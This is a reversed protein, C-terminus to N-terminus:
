GMIYPWANILNGSFNNVDDVVEYDFFIEAYAKSRKKRILEM